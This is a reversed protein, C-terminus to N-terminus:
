GATTSHWLTTEDTKMINDRIFTVNDVNSKKIFESIEDIEEGYREAKRLYFIINNFNGGLMKGKIGEELHADRSDLEWQTHRVALRLNKLLEAEPGDEKKEAESDIAKKSEDKEGSEEPPIHQSEKEPM